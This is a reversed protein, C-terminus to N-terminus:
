LYRQKNTGYPGCKWMAKIDYYSYFCVSGLETGGCCVCELCM